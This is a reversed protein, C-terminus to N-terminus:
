DCCGDERCCCLYVLLLIIALWILWDCDNFLDSLCGSSSGNCCCFFIIALIILWECGIGGDCSKSGGFCGM